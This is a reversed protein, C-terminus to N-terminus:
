LDENLPFAFVFFFLTPNNIFAFEKETILDILVWWLFEMTLNMITLTIYFPTLSSLRIFGVM